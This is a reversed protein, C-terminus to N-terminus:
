TIKNLVDKFLTTNGDLVVMQYGVDRLKEKKDETFSDKIFVIFLGRVDPYVERFLRFTEVERTIQEKGGHIVIKIQIISILEGNRKIYIDPFRKKEGLKIKINQGIEYNESVFKIPYTDKRGRKLPEFKEGIKYYLLRFVLFESFGTFGCSNSRYEKLKNFLSFYIEKIDNCLFKDVNETIHKDMNDLWEHSLKNTSKVLDSSESLLNSKPSMSEVVM